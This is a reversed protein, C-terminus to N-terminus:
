RAGRLSRPPRRRVNALHIGQSPKLELLMAAVMLLGMLALPLLPGLALDPRVFVQEALLNM